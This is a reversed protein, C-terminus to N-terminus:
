TRRVRRWVSVPVNGSAQTPIRYSFIDGNLQYLRKQTVGELNPFVSHEILFIVIGHAADVECRGFHASVGILATRYEDTTGKEKDGSVFKPREPRYIQLSYRGTADVMFVGAPHQGYPYIQSGDPKIEYAELLEWTGTLPFSVAEPEPAARLSMGSLLLGLAVVSCPILRFLCFRTQL